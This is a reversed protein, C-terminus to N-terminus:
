KNASSTGGPRAAKPPSGASAVKPTGNGGPRAAKPIDSDISVGRFDTGGGFPRALGEPVGCGLKPAAAQGVANYSYRGM